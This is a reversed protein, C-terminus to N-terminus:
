NWLEWVTGGSGLVVLAGTDAQGWSGSCHFTVAQEAGHMFGGKRIWGRNVREGGVSVGEM